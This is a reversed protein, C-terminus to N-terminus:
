EYIQSFNSIFDKKAHQKYAFFNKVEFFAGFASKFLFFIPQGKLALYKRSRKGCLFVLLFGIWDFPQELAELCYARFRGVDDCLGM